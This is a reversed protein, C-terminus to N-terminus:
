AVTMGSVSLAFCLVNTEKDREYTLCSTLEHIMSWGFGGEPLSAIDLADGSVELPAKRSPISGDPLPLGGDTLRCVIWGDVFDVELLIWGGDDNRYAHEVINNTAEALVIELTMWDTPDLGATTLRQSLDTIAGRVAMPTSTIREVLTACRPASLGIGEVPIARVPPLDLNPEGMAPWRPTGAAPLSAAESGTARDDRLAHDSTHHMNREGGEQTHTGGEGGRDGTALSAEPVHPREGESAAALM